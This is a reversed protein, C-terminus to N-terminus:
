DYGLECLKAMTEEGLQVDYMAHNICLETTNAQGAGIHDITMTIMAIMKLQNATLGFRSQVTPVATVEWIKAM